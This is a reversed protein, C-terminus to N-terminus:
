NKQKQQTGINKTGQMYYFTCSDTEQIIFCEFGKYIWIKLSFYRKPTHTQNEEDKEAGSKIGECNKIKGFLFAFCM